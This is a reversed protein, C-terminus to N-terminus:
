RSSKNHTSFYKSVFIPVIGMIISVSSLFIMAGIKYMATNNIEDTSDERHHHHSGSHNHFAM